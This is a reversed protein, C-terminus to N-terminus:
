RIISDVWSSDIKIFGEDPKAHPNRELIGICDYYVNIGINIGLMKGELPYMFTLLRDDGEGETRYFHFTSSFLEAARTNDGLKSAMEMKTVYKCMEVATDELGADKVLVKEMLSGTDTVIRLTYGGMAKTHNSIAHMQTESVDNGTLMWVMLKKVPDHYLTEYRALNVKGCHPCEWLFLSGDKVKDKLEPNDSVNISKYIKITSPSGCQSCSANAENIISM